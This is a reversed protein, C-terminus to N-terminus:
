IGFGAQKPSLLKINLKMTCESFNYLIMNLQRGVDLLESSRHIHHFTEIKTLFVRDFDSNLSSIEQFGIGEMKNHDEEHDIRKANVTM